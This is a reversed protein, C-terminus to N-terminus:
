LQMMCCFFIFRLFYINLPVLQRWLNYRSEFCGLYRQPLAFYGLMSQRKAQSYKACYDCSTQLNKPRLYSTIPIPNLGLIKFM